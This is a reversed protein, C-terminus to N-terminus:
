GWRATRRIICYQAATGCLCMVMTAPLGCASMWIRVCGLVRKYIRWLEALEDVRRSLMGKRRRLQKM